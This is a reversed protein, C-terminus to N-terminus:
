FYINPAPTEQFYYILAMANSFSDCLTTTQYRTTRAIGVIKGRPLRVDGPGSLVSLGLAGRWVIGNGNERRSRQVIALSLILAAEARAHQAM